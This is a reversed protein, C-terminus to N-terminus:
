IPFVMNVLQGINDELVDVLKFDAADEMNETEFAFILVVCKGLNVIGDLFIQEVANIFISLAKYLRLYKKFTKDSEGLLLMEDM